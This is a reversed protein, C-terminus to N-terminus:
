SASRTSPACAPSAPIRSATVSPPKVRNRRAASVGSFRTNSTLGYVTVFPRSHVPAPLVFWGNAAFSEIESVRISGFDFDFGFWVSLIPRSLWRHKESEFLVHRNHPRAPTM